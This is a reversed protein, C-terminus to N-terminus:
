PRAHAGEGSNLATAATTIRREKSANKNRAPRRKVGFFTWGNWSTGTIAKAITSLSRHRAGNWEFGNEHVLVTHTEGQWVRILCTGPRIRPGALSADFTGERAAAAIERLRRRTAASLGGYARVQLQYAIARILLDRRFTRPAPTGYLKEWRARLDGLSLEPLGAIEAELAANSTPSSRM